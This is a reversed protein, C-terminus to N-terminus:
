SCQLILPTVCAGANRTWEVVSSRTVTVLGTDRSEVCVRAELRELELASHIAKHILRPRSCRALDSVSGYLVRHGQSKLALGLVGSM